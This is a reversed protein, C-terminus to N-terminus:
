RYFGCLRYKSLLHWSLFHQVFNSSLLLILNLKKSCWDKLFFYSFICSLWFNRWFFYIYYFNLREFFHSAFFLILLWRCLLLCSVKILLFCQRNILYRHVYWYNALCLKFRCYHWDETANRRQYQYNAVDAWFLLYFDPIIWHFCFNIENAFCFIHFNLSRKQKQYKVLNRWSILDLYFIILCLIFWAKKPHLPSIALSFHDFICVQRLGIQTEQLFQKVQLSNQLQHFDQVEDLAKNICLISLINSALLAMLASHFKIWGLLLILVVQSCIFVFYIIVRM